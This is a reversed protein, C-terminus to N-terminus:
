FAEQPDHGRATKIHLRVSGRPDTEHGFSHHQSTQWLKLTSLLWVHAKNPALVHAKKPASVAQLFFYCFDYHKVINSSAVGQKTHSHRMQGDGNVGGTLFVPPPPGAARYSPVEGQTRELVALVGVASLQKPFSGRYTFVRDSELDQDM